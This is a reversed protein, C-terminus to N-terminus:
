NCTAIVTEGQYIPAPYIGLQRAADLLVLGKRGDAQGQVSALHRLDPRAALVIAEAFCGFIIDSAPLGTYYELGLATPLKALGGPFVLVDSRQNDTSLTKPYGVDCVITGSQLNTIHLLPEASSTAVVITRAYKAVEDAPVIETKISPLEARVANLRDFNRASLILHGSVDALIQACSRGIDGSAGLIAIPQDLSRGLTSAAQRLQAVALAATLSNGATSFAGSASEIHPVASGLLISTFGGLAIANAGLEVALQCGQVVKDRARRLQRPTKIDQVLFPCVILRGELEGCALRVALRRSTAYCPMWDMFSRFSQEHRRVRQAVSTGDASQIFRVFHQYDAPHGLLAFDVSTGLGSM